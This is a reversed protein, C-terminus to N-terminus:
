ETSRAYKDSILSSVGRHNSETERRATAHTPTYTRELKVTDLTAGPCFVSRSSLM